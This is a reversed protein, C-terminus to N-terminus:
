YIFYVIFWNIQFAMLCVSGLIMCHSALPEVTVTFVFRNLRIGFPLGIKGSVGSKSLIYPTFDALVLFQFEIM